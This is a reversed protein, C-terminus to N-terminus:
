SQDISITKDHRLFLKNSEWEKEFNINENLLYEQIIMKPYNAGSAYSMPYGGGFRANLEIALFQNEEKNAFIQLTLPGRAGKVFKLKNLLFKYLNNRRTIGKNIEGGVTSIRQRTVCCNLNGDKKFFLDVSYENWNSPIFDQFINEPNDLDYKCLQLNNKVIKLGKSSSGNYPKLVFPFKLDNKKYIEPYDIGLSKFFDGTIKKNRCIKVIENDSIIINIGEKQFLTRYKSLKELETDITPIVIGINRSLCERLLREIYKDDSVECIKFCSDAFNCAASLNPNMDNAFILCDEGLYRKAEKKWIEVLEVRRGASNILINKKIANKM